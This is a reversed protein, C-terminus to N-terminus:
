NSDEDIIEDVIDLTDFPISDLNFTENVYVTKSNETVPDEDPATNSGPVAKATPDSL